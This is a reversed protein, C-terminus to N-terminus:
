RLFCHTLWRTVPTRPPSLLFFPSFFTKKKSQEDSVTENRRLDIQVDRALANRGVSDDCGLVVGGHLELDGVDVLVAVQVSLRGANRQAAKHAALALRITGDVLNQLIAAVDSGEGLIGGDLLYMEKNQSGM